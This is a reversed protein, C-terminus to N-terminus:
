WFWEGYFIFWNCRQDSPVRIESYFWEVNKLELQLKLDYISLHGVVVLISIM